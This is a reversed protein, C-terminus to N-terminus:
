LYKICETSITGDLYYLYESIRDFSVNNPGSVFISFDGIVNPFVTTFVWIYTTDAFLVIDLKYHVYDCKEFDEAYSNRTPAFPIFADKYISDYTNLLSNSTVRYNGTEIVKMQIAEYYYNLVGCGSWTFTPSSETLASSYM